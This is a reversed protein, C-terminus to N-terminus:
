SHSRRHAVAALRRLVTRSRQRQHADLRGAAGQVNACGHERVHGGFRGALFGDEDSPRPEASRDVGVLLVRHRALHRAGTQADDRAHCPKRVGRQRSETVRAGDLGRGHPERSRRASRAGRSRRAVAADGEHHPWDGRRRYIRRSAVGSLHRLRPPQVAKAEGIPRAAHFYPNAVKGRTLVTRGTLRRYLLTLESDVSAVTGEPGGTGLVRLPIGKTLVIYLIRDFSNNRTLSTAIPTQITALYANPQITEDTTTQLRIVNAAPIGRAKVYAEGIQRSEPSAENIVVAVNEATQARAPAAALLLGLLWCLSRVRSGIPLRM